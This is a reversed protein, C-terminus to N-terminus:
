LCRNKEVFCKTKLGLLFVYFKCFLGFEIWKDFKIQLIFPLYFRWVIWTNLPDLGEYLFTNKFTISRCSINSIEM